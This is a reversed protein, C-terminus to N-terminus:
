YIRMNPGLFCKTYNFLLGSFSCFYYDYIFFDNRFNIILIGLDLTEMSYERNEKSKEIHFFESQGANKQFHFFCLCVDIREDRRKSVIELMSQMSLTSVPM